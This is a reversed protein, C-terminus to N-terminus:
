SYERYCCNAKADWDNCYCSSVEILTGALINSIVVDFCGEAHTDATAGVEVVVQNYDVNDRCASLAQPDHDLAVVRKAGRKAAGDSFCRIWM